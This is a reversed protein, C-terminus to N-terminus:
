HHMRSEIVWYGRKLSFMGKAPLQQLSLSGLLNVVESCWKGKRRLTSPTPSCSRVRSTKNAWCQRGAPIENCKSETVVDHPLPVCLLVKGCLSVSEAEAAMRM